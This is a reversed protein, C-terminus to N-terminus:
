LKLVNKFVAYLIGLNTIQKFINDVNSQADQLQAIMVKTPVFITDGLEIRTNPRAKTISGSARIILVQDKDADITVGGCRDLYYQLNNAGEYLITTPVFVAGRVAVTTPKEPIIIIDRDKLIVNHPSKSDLLALDLRIPINGSDSLEEDKLDRAPSVLDRAQILKKAAETDAAAPPVVTTSGIGALISLGALPQSGVSSNLIRIKDLDSKALARMYQTEHITDFLKRVRPSLRSESESVLYKPDRLFQAGIAWGDSTVGGAQKIVNALTETRNNIAYVGPKAVRGRIEVLIPADQFDGRGPITVVDGDQIVPDIKGRALDGISYTEIKTNEPVRSHSIQVSGGVDPMLGGALKILDTLMLNDSRPYTGPRQVSGNIIVTRLPVFKADSNTFVVVNDLDSLVVDDTGAM